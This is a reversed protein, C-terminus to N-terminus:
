GVGSSDMDAHGIEKPHIKTNIWSHKPRAIPRNGEPQSVNQICKKDTHMWFKVWHLLLRSKNQLKVEYIKHDM